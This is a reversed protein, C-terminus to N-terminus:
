FVEEKLPKSPKNKRLGEYQFYGAIVNGNNLIQLICARKYGSGVEICDDVTVAPQDM